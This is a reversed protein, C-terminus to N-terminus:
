CAFFRAFFFTYSLLSKYDGVEGKTITEGCNKYTSRSNKTNEIAFEGDCGDEDGNRNGDGSKPKPKLKANGGKGKTTLSVDGGVM